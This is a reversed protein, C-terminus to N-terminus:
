PFEAVLVFWVSKVKGVLEQGTGFKTHGIVRPRRNSNINGAIVGLPLSSQRQEPPTSAFHTPSVETVRCTDDHRHHLPGLVFFEM